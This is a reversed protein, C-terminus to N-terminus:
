RNFSSIVLICGQACFEFGQVAGCQTSVGRNSPLRSPADSTIYGVLNPCRGPWGLFGAAPWEDGDGPGHRGEHPGPRRQRSSRGGVKPTLLRLGPGRGIRRRLIPFPVSPISPGSQRPSREMNAEIASGCNGFNSGTRYLHAPPRVDIVVDDGDVSSSSISSDRQPKGQEPPNKSGMIVLLAQHHSQSSALYSATLRKM